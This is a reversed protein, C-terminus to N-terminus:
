VFCMEDDFPVGAIHRTVAKWGNEWIGRHGMMEFYQVPKATPADAAATFSSLMSTGTIPMQEVGRHVTPPTIGLAEYITARASPFLLLGWQNVM